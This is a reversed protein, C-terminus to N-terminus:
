TVWHPKGAEEMVIPLIRRVERAIDGVNFEEGWFIIDTTTPDFLRFLEVTELGAISHGKPGINLDAYNHRKSKLWWKDLREDFHEFHNRM